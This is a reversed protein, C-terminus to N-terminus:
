ECICHWYVCGRKDRRKIPYQVTLRGFKKGTLDIMNTSIRHSRGGCTKCKGAKLDHASVVKENGCDCRCLWCVRGNRNQARELVKLNGFRRGTLDEAKAMEEEREASVNRM